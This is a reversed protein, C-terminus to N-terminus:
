GLEGHDEHKKNELVRIDLPGQEEDHKWYTHRRPLSFQIGHKEFSEFIKLNVKECFECYSWYDPSSYWYVMQINFSDPNFETFYVRPPHDPPIDEDNALIVRIENIAKEVKHRPTDIPIHLNSTRCIYERKGINEVESDAMQDNPISIVHGTLFERIKTSRLGIDEVIGDQGKAVIRDGVRFPRDLLITVTGFLGKLMGQASFAIALGGLGASALLTTLPFGLHKGGELFIITAAVIGLMRFIIRILTPDVERRRVRPFAAVSDALRSSLGLVVVILATLFVSNAVFEVFYLPAGRLTLHHFAFYKFGLPVLMAVIPFSLSGWYKLLSKERVNEGRIGGIRYATLMLAFGVVTGIMLGVWQWIALRLARRRFRDPLADVWAAILPDGPASLFWDYLGPSVPPGETRYPQQRVDPFTTIARRVSEPAFLYEGRRPGELVRTISLKTGPVLWQALPEGGEDSQLNEPGPIQEAAPLPVRDLIEKICVAAEAAFDERAYEPLETLDLCRFIQTALSRFQPDARDVYKTAQIHKSIANTKNLFLTITGRPSSTDATLAPQSKTLEVFRDHFGPSVDRGESRYPLQKATSYLKAAQRVTESTFLFTGTQAGDQFHALTIRTGPIRWRSVVDDDLTTEAPIQDDEPLEIRDLVEKLYVGSEIGVTDRLEIPLASLDLCDKMREAAPVVKASFNEPSQETAALEYLENCADLFSLLTARYSSTDSPQLPNRRQTEQALSILPQTMVCAIIASALILARQMRRTGRMQNKRSAGVLLVDRADTLQDSPEDYTRQHRFWKVVVCILWTWRWIRHSPPRDCARIM